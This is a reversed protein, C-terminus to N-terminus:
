MNESITIPDSLQPSSNLFLQAPMFSAWKSLLVGPNISFVEVFSSSSKNQHALSLEVELLKVRWLSPTAWRRSQKELSNSFIHHYPVFHIRTAGCDASPLGGWSSKIFTFKSALTLAFWLLIIRSKTALTCSQNNIHNTSSHQFSLLCHSCIPSYINILPSFYCQILYHLSKLLLTM